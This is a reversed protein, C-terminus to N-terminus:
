SLWLTRHTAPDRPVEPVTAPYGVRIFGTIREHDQVQLLARADQAQTIGGTAWHTGVGFSWAALLMGYTACSVAAYDEEQRHPDSALQQIVGIIVPVAMYDNQAKMALREPDPRNQSVAKHWAVDYRIRALQALSDGQLVVFRWPQTMHHNPAQVAAELMAEIVAQPVPGPRFLHITRRTLLGEMLEM